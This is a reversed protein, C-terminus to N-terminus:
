SCGAIFGGTLLQHPPKERFTRPNYIQRDALDKLLAKTLVAKHYPQVLVPFGAKVM